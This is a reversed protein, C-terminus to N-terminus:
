RRGYRVVLLNGSLDEREKGVNKIGSRMYSPIEVNLSM